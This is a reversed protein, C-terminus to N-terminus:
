RWHESIWPHQARLAPMAPSRPGNFFVMRAAQPDPTANLSRIEGNWPWTAEDPGLVLSIWSQDDVDLGAAALAAPATAVDFREHVQPRSGADLLILSGNYRSYPRVGRLAHYLRPEWMAFDEPRDVLDDIRARIVVDLDIALLRTGGFVSAADRRFLALRRFFRPWDREPAPPAVIRVRPDIGDPMDTVCVMEHPLTLHRALMSRLRNVYDASYVFLHNHRGDPEFWLFTVVTIM